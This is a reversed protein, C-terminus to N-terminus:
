GEYAEVVEGIRGAMMLEGHDLWIARDCDGAGDRDCALCVDADQGGSSQYKLDFTAHANHRYEMM